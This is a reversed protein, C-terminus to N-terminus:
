QTWDVNCLQSNHMYKNNYIFFTKGQPLIYICYRTKSKTLISCHINMDIRKCIGMHKYIKKDLSGLCIYSYWDMHKLPVETLSSLRSRTISHGTNSKGNIKDLLLM